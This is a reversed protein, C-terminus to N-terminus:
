TTLPTHTHTHTRTRTQTNRVLDNNYVNPRRPRIVRMRVFRVHERVDRRPGLLYGAVTAAGPGFVRGRGRVNELRRGVAVRGPVRLVGLGGHQHVPAFVRGDRGPVRGRRRVHARRRGAPHGARRPVFVQLRGLHEHVRGPVARARQAVLM